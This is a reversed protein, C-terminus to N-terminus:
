STVEMGVELVELRYPEEQTLDFTPDYSRGQVRFPYTASRLPPPLFYPDGAQYGSLDTRNIKFPGAHRVTIAGQKIKRRRMRQRFSQGKDFNAAYPRFLPVYNFGWQTPAAGPDVEAHGTFNIAATKMYLGDVIRHLIASNFLALATGGSRDSTEVVCDLKLSYDLEEFSRVVSGNPLTRETAFNVTEALAAIGKILGDTRWPVFGVFDAGANYRGVTVSGDANVIYVTEGSDVSQGYSVAIDVPAKILQSHYRSIHSLVYPATTQGTSRVAMVRAADLSLYIIASSTRVPRVEACGGTGIERFGVSGPALPNSESIPIYYIVNETFVFQDPGGMVFVVRERHPAIEFIADAADVTDSAKGISAQGINFAEPEGIESELIAGPLQKFDCFILRQRDVSVAGPWGRFPTMFAEDWYPIPLPDIFNKDGGAATQEDADPGIIHEQDGTSPKTGEYGYTIIVYLDNGDIDIIVGKFGSEFGEIADGIRFGQVSEMGIRESPPLEELNEFAGETHSHYEIFKLRRGMYRFETGVMGAHLVDASFTVVGNGVSRRNPQMTIGKEAFRYFPQRLMQNTGIQFEFDRISWLGANEDFELVQPVLNRAVVFLKNDYLTWDLHALHDATWPAVLTQLAGSRDRARFSTTRFEIDFISGTIPEITDIHERSTFKRRTGPRRRFGGALMIDFNELKAAGARLIDTDDRRQAVLDIEGGSYDRQPNLYAPITM